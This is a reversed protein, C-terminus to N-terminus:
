PNSPKPAALPEITVERFLVKSDAKSWLGVRGELPETFERRLHEKGDLEVVVEGARLTVAFTHWQKSPTPVGRV